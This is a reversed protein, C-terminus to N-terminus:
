PLAAVTPPDCTMLSAAEEHPGKAPTGPTTWVKGPTIPLTWLDTSPDKYGRLIIKNNYRVICKEKDFTVTCGANCLVRIGFLSAMKIGPVIHGTLVTPLGPITINCTHTSMVKKGDPLNITIPHATPQVNEMPIGEMVFISTAGTDAIAHSMEILMNAYNQHKPAIQTSITGTSNATSQMRSCNSAIITTDDKDDDAFISAAINLQTPYSSITSNVM